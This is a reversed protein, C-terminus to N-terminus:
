PGIERMLNHNHPITDSYHDRSGTAALPLPAGYVRITNVGAFVWQNNTFQTLTDFFTPKLAHQAASWMGLGHLAEHLLVSFLDRQNLIAVEQTPVPNTEVAIPLGHSMLQLSSPSVWTGLEYDAGNADIGTAAEEGAFSRGSTTFGGYAAFGPGGARWYQGLSNNVDFRIVFDLVGNWSIHQSLHKMVADANAHLLQQSVAYNSPFDRITVTYRSQLAPPPNAIV